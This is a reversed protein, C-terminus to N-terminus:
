ERDPVVPRSFFRSMIDLLLTGFSIVLNSGRIFPNNEEERPEEMKPAPTKEISNIEEQPLPEEFTVPRVENLYSNILNNSAINTHLGPIPQVKPPPSTLLIVPPPPALVPGIGIPWNPEIPSMPIPVRGLEQRPFIIPGRQEIEHDQVPLRPEVVRTEEATAINDLDRKEIGHKVGFKGFPSWKEKILHIPKFPLPKFDFNFNKKLSFEGFPSGTALNM